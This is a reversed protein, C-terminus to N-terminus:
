KGFVEIISGSLAKKKKRNLNEEDKVSIEEKMICDLTTLEKAITNIQKINYIDNM